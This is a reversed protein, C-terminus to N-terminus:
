GQKMQYVFSTRGITVQDGHNLRARTLSRDNVYVPHSDSLVEIECTDGLTRLIAHEPQVRDDNFLYIECKPSSGVTMVDKFFLFEKGALPGHTMRLWFDRALVQVIGIFVGVSLGIITFGIARSWHGSPKAFGVIYFDIPDFLMGGLLGGIVGGMFGYLLLRKSRLAIGQGLGMAMGICAWM